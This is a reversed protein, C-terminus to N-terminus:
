GRRWSESHASGGLRCCTLPGGGAPVQPVFLRTLRDLEMDPCSDGVPVVGEVRDPHGKVVGEGHLGVFSVRLWERAQLLLQGLFGVERSAVRATM